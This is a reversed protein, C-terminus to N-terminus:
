ENWTFAGTQPDYHAAHHKIAEHGADELCLTYGSAFAVLVLVFIGACVTPLDLKM